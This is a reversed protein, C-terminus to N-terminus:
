HGSINEFSLWLAACFGVCELHPYGPQEANPLQMSLCLASDGYDLGLTPGTVEATSIAAHQVAIDDDNAPVLFGALRFSLRICGAFTQGLLETISPFSISTENLLTGSKAEGLNKLLALEQVLTQVEDDANLLPTPPVSLYSHPSLYHDSLYALISHEHWWREEYGLENLWSMWSRPRPLSSEFVCAQLLRSVGM